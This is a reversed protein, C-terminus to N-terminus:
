KERQEELCLGKTEGVARYCLMQQLREKQRLSM